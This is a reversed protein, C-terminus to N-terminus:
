SMHLAASEDDLKEQERCVQEHISLLPEIVARLSSGDAVLEGVKRRFQSGIARGFLLGYEKMMRGSRTRSIAGYRVLRSRAVLM